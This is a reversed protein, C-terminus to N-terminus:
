EALAVEHRVWIRWYDSTSEMIVVEVGDAVLRSGLDLIDRSRAPVNEEVRSRRRSRGAAPPLRTCVDGKDKAIDIGAVKEHRLQYEEDEVLRAPIKKKRPAM